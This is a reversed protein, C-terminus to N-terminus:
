ALPTQNRFQSPTQEALKKFWRAFTTNDPFALMQSIQTVGYPTHVLLRKAELLLRDQLIRKPTTQTTERVTKVLHNSTVGLMDAYAQVQRHHRYHKEVAQQFIRTLQVPASAAQEVIGPPLLYAAETLTTHLYATALSEWGLVRDDFHALATTFLHLFQAQRDAPITLTPNRNTDDFPLINVLHHAVTPLLNPRFGFLLIRCYGQDVLYEHLQGPSIFILCGTELPYHNFDSFFTCSGESLWVLEYFDHRHMKSSQNRGIEGSQAVFINADNGGTPSAFSTPFPQLLEDHPM